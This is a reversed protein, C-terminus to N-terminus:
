NNLKFYDEISKEYEKLTTEIPYPIRLTSGEPISYEMSGLSPNAQLILWGFNPNSYHKYSLNFLKMYKHYTIYLDSSKERIKIFPVIKVTGNERFKNYRDYNTM